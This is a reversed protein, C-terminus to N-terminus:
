EKAQELLVRRETELKLKDVGFYKYLLESVEGLSQEVFGDKTAVCPHLGMDELVELAAVVSDFQGVCEGWQELETM